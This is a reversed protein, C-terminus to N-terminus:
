NALLYAQVEAFPREALQTGPRIQPFVFRGALPSGRQDFKLQSYARADSLPRWAIALDTPALRAFEGVSYNNRAVVVVRGGFRGLARYRFGHYDRWSPADAPAVIVPEAAALVGAPHPVERERTYWHVGGIVSAVLLVTLLLAQM